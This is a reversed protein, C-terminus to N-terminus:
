IGIFCSCLYVVEVSNLQHCIKEFVAYVDSFKKYNESGGNTKYFIM